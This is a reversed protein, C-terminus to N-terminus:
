KSKQHMKRKALLVRRESGTMERKAIEHFIREIPTKKGSDTKSKAM